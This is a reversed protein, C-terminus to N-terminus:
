HFAHKACGESFPLETEAGFSQRVQWDKLSILIQEVLNEVVHDAVGYFVGWIAPPNSDRPPRDLIGNLSRCDLDRNDIGAYADVWLIVLEDEFFEILGAFHM